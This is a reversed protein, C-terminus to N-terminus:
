ATPPREIRRLDETAGLLKVLARAIHALEVFQARPVLQKVCKARGNLGAFKLAQHLRAPPQGGVFRRVESEFALATEVYRSPRVSPEGVAVRRFPAVGVDRRISRRSEHM